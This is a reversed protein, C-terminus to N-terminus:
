RKAVKKKTVKKGGKLAKSRVRDVSVWEDETADHGEYHVKVPAKARRKADSVEVVEAAYWTEGFMAQVRMGKQLGSVDPAGAEGKGAKAPAAKKDQAAKLAKSKLKDFSLWQDESADYGNYHVKVPAKERKKATSVEVVEAAYFVEGFMAQLKMGKELGHAGGAGKAAKAPPAGKEGKAAVAKLAKSRVRDVSVWEDTAADQGAYHVKIPAKAKNKAKSVAVVDAAYWVDAYMAQVRMGQQLGSLDVAGAAAKAPATGSVEKAKKGTVKLAKSKLRDVGVWEDETSDHGVYHVKVPAKARKKAGSVELVEAAYYTEGFMAQLRMGKELGSLDPAGSAAAAPEKAGKKTAAGKLAKSRLRDVGIWEDLSADQGAYHVKVPTKAKNKAKSVAVVDAAYWVDAYMAQVRMGTQLGSLDAAGASAKEPPDAKSKAGKAGKLAKSRLHDVAVWEDDTVDHGVYHVKIPAKARRSAGSVEIIEAAYWTDGSCAQVRMGKELKSLDPGDSKTDKSTSTAKKGTAGKAAPAAGKLAKSRLRDLGIWEDESDKYGAYHVKVPAKARKKSTSVEVIEAAYWVDQLMAQVRMGSQLVSLDVGSPGNDKKQPAM